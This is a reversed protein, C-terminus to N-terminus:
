PRKINLESQPGRPHKKLSTLDNEKPKFKRKNQKLTWGMTYAIKSM